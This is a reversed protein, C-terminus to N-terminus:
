SNVVPGALDVWYRSVPKGSYPSPDEGAFVGGNKQIIRASGANETNCTILVRTLGFERAKQLTLGCLLSGYGRRRCGPRVSYGIHGGEILLWQNLTHRLWSGAVISTGNRILWFTTQQVYGEPLGHGEALLEAQAIYRLPDNCEAARPLDYEEGVSRYEM